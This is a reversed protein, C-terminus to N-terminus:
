IKAEEAKKRARYKERQYNRYYELRKERHRWYGDHNYQAIKEPHAKQWARVRSRVKDRDVHYIHKRYCSECRGIAHYALDEGFKELCGICSLWKIRKRHLSLKTPIPYQKRLDKLGARTIIQRVRERSINNKSGVKELCGRERSTVCTVYDTIVKGRDAKISEPIITM